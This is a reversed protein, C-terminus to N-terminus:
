KPLNKHEIHSYTLEIFWFMSQMKMKWLCGLVFYTTEITQPFIYSSTKYNCSSQNALLERNSLQKKKLDAINKIPLDFKMEQPVWKWRKLKNM